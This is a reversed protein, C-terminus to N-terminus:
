WEDWERPPPPESEVGLRRLDSWSIRRPEIGPWRMILLTRLYQGVIAGLVTQAAAIDRGHTQSHRIVWEPAEAFGSWPNPRDSIAALAGVISQDLLQQEWTVSFELDLSGDSGTLLGALADVFEIWYDHDDSGTDRSALYGDVLEDLGITRSGNM